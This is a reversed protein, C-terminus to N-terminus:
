HPYAIIAYTTTFGAGMRDRSRGDRLIIKLCINFCKKETIDHRSYLVGRHSSISTEVLGDYKIPNKFHQWM